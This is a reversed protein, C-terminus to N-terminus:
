NRFEAKLISFYFTSGKGVESEVWIKGGYQEVIKKCIALGIGTGDYENKNDLRQFIIFIREFDKPNIGIGNDCISFVWYNNDRKASVRIQPSVKGHFKIGNSILNQFVQILQNKDVFLSTLSDYIVEANTENILEALNDIVDKLVDNLDVKGFKKYVKGIKSYTLLSNILNQMRSVGETIFRIFDNADEDLKDKYHKELLQAFSSIMRLPEKLDHSAIYTFQELETNVRALDEISKQLLQEAKKRVTIDIAAGEIRNEKLNTRASISAWFPTGDRKSVQIEFDKIENNIHIEELIEFRQHPDVYHETAIYDTLCEERNNYGFLKAFTENCEIFKGDSIRSWYLGVQANDFLYKYKEESEKLKQEAIKRDTIDRVLGYFGVKNGESDYILDILGEFYILKKKLTMLKAENTPPWPVGTKYVQNFLNFLVECSKADFLSHYDKGIVEEKSYEITKYYEANAYVHKGRLDTEYYIEMMNELINRYKEESEKLRQESLKRETIDRSITIAKVLGNSDKFTRGKTEVWIYKGNKHRLRLEGTEEGKKFVDQLVKLATKTDAPHMIDHLTKGLMEENSYGLIKRYTHENIYEHEFKSNLIAILDNANESILRYKEESEKLKKENTKIKNSEM